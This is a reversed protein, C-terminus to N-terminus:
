DNSCILKGNLNIEKVIIWNRHSLSKGQNEQFLEIIITMSLILWSGGGFAITTPASM